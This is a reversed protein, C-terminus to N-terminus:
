IRRGGLDVCLLDDAADSTYLLCYYYVEKVIRLHIATESDRVGEVKHLKQTLFELRHARNRCSVEAILDHTGTLIALYAVESFTAIEEAVESIRDMEANIGVLALTSRGTLLPNTIATIQLVGTDILRQYRQRATGPSVDLRRAIESFPMRGDERLADVIGQDVKDLSATEVGVPVDFASGIM